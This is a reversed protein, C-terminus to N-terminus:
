NAPEASAAYYQSLIRGIHSAVIENGARGVHCCDDTYLETEVDRYIGSLDHFRVGRQQLSLGREMLIPYWRPILKRLAPRSRFVRTERETFPKSGDLYQNPQLFQFYPFGRGEALHHLADILRRARDPDRFSLPTAAALVESM